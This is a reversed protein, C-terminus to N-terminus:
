GLGAPAAAVTMMSGAIAADFVAVVALLAAKPVKM